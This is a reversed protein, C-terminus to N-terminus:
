DKGVSLNYLVKFFISVASKESTWWECLKSIRGCSENRFVKFFIKAMKLVLKHINNVSNIYFNYVISDYSFNMKALSQEFKVSNRFHLRQTTGLNNPEWNIFFHFELLLFRKIKCSKITKQLSPSKCFNNSSLLTTYPFFMAKCYINCPKRIRKM